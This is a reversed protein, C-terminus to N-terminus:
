RPALRILRVGHGPMDLSITRHGEATAIPEGNQTMPVVPALRDARRGQGDM